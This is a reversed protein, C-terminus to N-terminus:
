RFKVQADNLDQDLISLDIRWFDNYSGETSNGGFTYLYNNYVAASHGSRPAPKPRDSSSSQTSAKIWHNCGSRPAKTDYIWIDDFTEGPCSGGYM